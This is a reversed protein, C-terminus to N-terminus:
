LLSVDCVLMHVCVYMDSLQFVHNCEYLLDDLIM